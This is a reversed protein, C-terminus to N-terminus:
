FSHKATTNQEFQGRSGTYIAEVDIQWGIDEGVPVVRWRRFIRCIFVSIRVCGVQEEDYSMNRPSPKACNSPPEM